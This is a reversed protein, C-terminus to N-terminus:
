SARRLLRGLVLVLLADPHTEYQDEQPRLEVIARAKFRRFLPLKTALSEPLYTPVPGSGAGSGAGAGPFTLLARLRTEGYLTKKQYRRGELLIREVRTDLYGPAVARQGQAFAEEIRRSFGEAIDGPLRGELKLADAASTTVERLKKDAGLFPGTVTLIARLTEVEDFDFCLEGAVLALPAVFAGDAQYAAAAAQGVGAADDLVRGRSLLALTDRRDHAEQPERQGPQEKIWTPPPKPPKAEGLTKDARVRPLAAVDFWLLDVHERAPERAAPAPDAGGHRDAAPPTSPRPATAAAANSAAAAGRETAQRLDIASPARAPPPPVEAPRASSLDPYSSRMAGPSTPGAGTPTLALPALPAAPPQPSHSPARIRDLAAVDHLPAHPLPRIRDLPAAEHVPPAWSPAAPPPAVSGLSAPPARFWGPASVEAAAPKPGGVPMTLAPPQPLSPRTLSAAGMTMPGKIGDPPRGAEASVAPQGGDGEGSALWEPWNPKSARTDHVATERKWPAPGAGAPPRPRTQEIDITPRSPPAALMEVSPWDLSRGIMEMAIVVRGEEGGGDLTLQGRWTLTCMSRDTDIWLTDCVLPLDTVPGRPREVFARPEYGPLNTVLRPHDPHLNELILRENARLEDLYQDVPASM